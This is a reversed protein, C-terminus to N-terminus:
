VGNCLLRLRSSKFGVVVVVVVAAVSAEAM